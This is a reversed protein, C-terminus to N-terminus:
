TAAGKESNCIIHAVQVNSWVHGGGKSMPVIHDVSPHMPGSYKSWSHDNPDCMKGCLACRLGDRRILKALTVSSDYLCGNKIARHRHSDQRGKHSIKVREKTHADRCEASCYGSDRYYRSGTSEMYERLTYEKGCVKCIHADDLLLMRSLQYASPKAARAMKREAKKREAEAKRVMRQEAQRILTKEHECKKCILNGTKIFGVTREFVDGCSRCKIMVSEDSTTYGGIYDFGLVDLREILRQEAEYRQRERQEDSIEGWRRGNTLGRTKVSGNIRAKSVGFKEATEAVTHGAVYYAMAEDCEASREWINAGDSAAGCEACILRDQRGRFIERLNWTNFEAGCVRCKIRARRGHDSSWDRKILEFSESMGLADLKARWDAEAKQHRDM